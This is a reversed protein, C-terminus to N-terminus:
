EFGEVALAGGALPHHFGIRGLRGAALQARLRQHRQLDRRHAGFRQENAAM